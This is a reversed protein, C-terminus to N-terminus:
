VARPGGRPTPPPPEAPKNPAAAPAGWGAGAWGSLLDLTPTERTPTSTPPGAQGRGRSAYRSPERPSPVQNHHGGTPPCYNHGILAGSGAGTGTREASLGSAEGDDSGTARGGNAPPGRSCQRSASSAPMASCRASTAAITPESWGGVKSFVTTASSREPRSSLRAPRTNPLRAEDTDVGRSRSISRSSAGSSAACASAM